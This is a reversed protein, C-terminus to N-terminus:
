SKPEDAANGIQWKGDFDLENSIPKVALSWCNRDLYLIFALGCLFAAVGVRARSPAAELQTM